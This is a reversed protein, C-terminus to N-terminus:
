TLLSFPCQPHFHVYLIITIYNNNSNRININYCAAGGQSIGSASMETIKVNSDITVNVRTIITTM